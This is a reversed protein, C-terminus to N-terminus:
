DALTLPDALLDERSQRPIVGDFSPMSAPDGEAIKAEPKLVSDCLFALDRGSAM